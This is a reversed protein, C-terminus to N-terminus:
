DSGRQLLITTQMHRGVLEVIKMLGFSYAAGMRLKFNDIAAVDRKGWGLELSFEAFLARGNVSQHQPFSRRDFLGPREM